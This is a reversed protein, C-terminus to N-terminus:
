VSEDGFVKNHTSNVKVFTACKSLSKIRKAGLYTCASRIGSLIDILTDKVPGRYPVEVTKGEVGRYERHPVNHRSMASESAMGYFKMFKRAEFHPIYMNSEGRALSAEGNAIHKTVIEGDCEDHGALMGGIMVFDAGAAFAKVIDGASTCGGDAIIHANMGHAADACEIVASLQPYGVGTKVRTTCVSGPGVGVKIIDAGALILEQTMDATVVNGAVITAEPLRERIDKVADIVSITYGNAVDIGIFEWKLHHTVLHGIEDIGSMMCVNKGLMRNDTTGVRWMTADKKMYHRAPCTIMNYQLLVEYMEPTGVTDMNAAMIPTGTWEKGSHVFKFTRTMEVDYRSTLTSRKPRLLVDNYDLKTDTELLM